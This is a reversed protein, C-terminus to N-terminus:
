PESSKLQKLKRSAMSIPMAIQAIIYLPYFFNKGYFVIYYIISGRPILFYDKLCQLGLLTDSLIFSLLALAFLKSQKFNLLSFLVNCTLNAYYFMSLVAVADLRSGLVLTTVTLIGASAVTRLILHVRKREQNQDESYIRLFYAIQTGCFFVMGPVRLQNPILVLFFDAGVTGLLGLQTFLWSESGDSLVACFLCSSVICIYSFLSFAVNYM